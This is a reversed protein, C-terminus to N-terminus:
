KFPARKETYYAIWAMFILVVALMPLFLYEFRLVFFSIIGLVINLLILLLDIKQHSFGSQALRQYIHKKHARTLKENNRWRRYLTLTADFWFPTLLLVWVKIPMSNINHYYISFVILIFGMQTSGIDGMFIRAKPWNWILFGIISAIFILNLSEGTLIFFIIAISIAEVSAYGDIGDLFNYLNIFWIMGTITIPYILINLNFGPDLIINHEIGGLFVFSSIATLAQVIMRVLPNVGRIDDILSILALAAGCMLAYFLSNDISENLFLFFLGIYWTIVIALGGGRPTPTLHSSRDNPIDIIQFKSSISKIIMTM